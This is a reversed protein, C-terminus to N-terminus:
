IRIGPQIGVITTSRSNIDLMQLSTSQLSVYYSLVRFNHSNPLGVPSHLDALIHNGVRPQPCSSTYHQQCRQLLDM